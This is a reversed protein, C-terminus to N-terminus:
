LGSISEWDESHIIKGDRLLEVDNEGDWRCELVEADWADDPEREGDDIQDQYNSVMDDNEEVADELTAFLSPAQDEINGISYGDSVLPQAVVFFKGTEIAKNMADLSTGSLGELLVAKIENNM